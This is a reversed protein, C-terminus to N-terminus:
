DGYYSILFNKDGLTFYVENGEYNKLSSGDASYAKSGPEVTITKVYPNSVVAEKVIDLVAKVSAPITLVTNRSDRPYLYMWTFDKNYLAGDKSAFYPNEKNVEIRQLNVFGWYPNGESYEYQFLTQVNKGVILTQLHPNSITDLTVQYYTSRKLEFSCLGTVTIVTDPITFTIDEKNCPYAVLETMDNNYLVGGVSKFNVNETAVNIEKLSKNRQLGYNGYELEKSLVISELFSNELMGHVTKVTDPMCYTKDAKNVPYYILETIDKNYLVGDISTLASNNKDVEVTIAYDLSHLSNYDFETLAEPIFINTLHCGAFLKSDSLKTVTNPINLVKLKKNIDYIETKDHNYLVGDESSYYKNKVDVTINELTAIDYPKGEQFDLQVNQPIVLEKIGSNLLDGVKITQLTDPFDAATQKQFLYLKTKDRNYLSGEFLEFYQNGAEITIKNFSKHSRNRTNLTKLNKPIVIENVQDLNFYGLNLQKLTGPFKLVAKNYAEPIYYIDTKAANYVIGNYSAYLKNGDEINIVQLSSVRTFDMATVSKPITVSTLRNCNIFADQKITKLGKPFVIKKLSSENFAESEITLTGAPVTYSTGKGNPYFLLTDGKKNFLVGNKASYSTNKSSVQFSKVKKLEALSSLQDSGVKAGVTVYQLNDAHSFANRKVNTVTDPISYRIEGSAAPYQILISKKKDFLCGKDTTFYPNGKAVTITRLKKLSNFGDSKIAKLTTPIRISEANPFKSNDVTSWYISTVGEAIIITKVDPYSVRDYKFPYDKLNESIVFEAEGKYTATNDQTFYYVSSALCEKYSVMYLSIVAALMIFYRLNKKM